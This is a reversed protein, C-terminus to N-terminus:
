QATTGGDINVVAGNVNRAGESALYTALEAIDSPENLRRIPIAERREEVWEPNEERVEENIATKTTGPAIANVNVGKPGFEVALQRTLANVGGKSSCYVPLNEIGREGAESSINILTGDTEVLSPLAAKALRMPGTLNVDIVLEIDSEDTETIPGRTMAGASNFAIDLPGFEEIAAEVAADVTSQDTLDCEVFAAEGGDERIVEHTPTGGSRPEERIDGVVVKAGERGFREAVARGIGSSAGVVFAVDGDLQDVM